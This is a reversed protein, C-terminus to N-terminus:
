AERFVALASGAHRAAPTSSKSPKALARLKMRTSARQLAVHAMESTGISPVRPAPSSTSIPDEAQVRCRKRWARVDAPTVMVRRGIRECTLDRRGIAARLTAASVAGRLLLQAAEDLTMPADDDIPHDSTEM